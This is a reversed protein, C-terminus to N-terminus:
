YIIQQCIVSFKDVEVWILFSSDPLQVDEAGVAVPM